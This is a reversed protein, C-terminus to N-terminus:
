IDRFLRSGDMEDAAEVEEEIVLVDFSDLLLCFGDHM